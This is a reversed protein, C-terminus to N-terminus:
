AGTNGEMSATGTEIAGEKSCFWLAGNSTLAETTGYLAWWSDPNSVQIFYTSKKFREGFLIYIVIFKDILTFGNQNWLLYISVIYFFINKTSQSKGRTDM